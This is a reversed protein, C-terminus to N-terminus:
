RGPWGSSTWGEWSAVGHKIAHDIAKDLQEGTVVNNGYPGNTVIPGKEASANNRLFEYREENTPM